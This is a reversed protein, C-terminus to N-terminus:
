QSTQQVKFILGDLHISDGLWGNPSTIHVLRAEEENLSSEVIVQPVGVTHVVTFHDTPPRFVWGSSNSGECSGLHLLLPKVLHLETESVRVEVLYM